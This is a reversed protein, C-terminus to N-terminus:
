QAQVQFAMWQYRITEALTLRPDFSRFRRDGQRYFLNRAILPPVETLWYDMSIASEFYDCDDSVSQLHPIDKAIAFAKKMMEDTPPYGQRDIIVGIAGPKMRAFANILNVLASSRHTTAVENFCNQVVAIDCERLDLNAMSESDAISVVVNEVHLSRPNWYPREIKDLVISRSYEWEDGAIDVTPINLTEVKRFHDHLYGTIACLEPMPGSGFLVANACTSIPPAIGNDRLNNLVDSLPDTYGLFYRLLYVEQIERYSYDTRVRKYAGFRTKGPRYSEWLEIAAPRLSELYSAMETEGQIENKEFIGELLEKYM